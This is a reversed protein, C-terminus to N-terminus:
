SGGRHRWCLTYRRTCVLIPGLLSTASFALFFQGLLPTFVPQDPLFIRHVIVGLFTTLTIASPVAPISYLLGAQPDDFMATDEERLGDALFIWGALTLAIPVGLVLLLAALESANSIYAGGVGLAVCVVAVIILRQKDRTAMLPPTKQQDSSPADSTIATSEVLKTGDDMVAVAAASAM